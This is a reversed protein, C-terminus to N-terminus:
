EHHRPDTRSKLNNPPQWQSSINYYIRRCSITPAISYYSLHSSILLSFIFYFSSILILTSYLLVLFLLEFHTFSHRFSKPVLISGLTRDKKEEKSFELCCFCSFTLVRQSPLPQCHSTPPSDPPKTSRDRTDIEASLGLRLPTSICKCPVPPTHM